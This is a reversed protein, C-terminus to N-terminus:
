LIVESINLVIRGDVGLDKLHERERLNGCWIRVQLEEREWRHRM